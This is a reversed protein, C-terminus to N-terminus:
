CHHLSLAVLKFVIYLLTLGGAAKAVPARAREQAMTVAAEPVDFIGRHVLEERAIRIAEPQWQDQEVTVALRLEDDSLQSMRRRIPDDAEDMRRLM